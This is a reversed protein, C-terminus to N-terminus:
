HGAGSADPTSTSSATSSTLSGLHSLSPKGVMALDLDAQAQWFDRLADIAANVSAIQSRADALLEFVGILMGNYRLLNEESIRSKIPVIEDRQHKAIDWAYRYAVYAERVESRAQIATQAARHLSQMYLSEARAVRAQGWDFLPLEVTVEWGRQTPADNATNNVLGWELVNIFRTTRTLGLQHATAQAGARAARVDLRETMAQRELDPWSKPQSPLDPLRQPLQFSLQDGWLGLLRVLRERSAHQQQEARALKLAADAHFSKERAYQLANFNGVQAMRRALEASAEAAQMVQRGYRVSEQAAVAQVWAKRVNASLELVQMAVLAQTHELRRAQDRQSLPLTLLRLLNFHFSRELEVENGRTKQAFGFGPNPLRSAQLLQAESIGLEAYAAQLGQNNLLAVQIAEDMGLPESLLSKLRQTVREQEQPTRSWSIETKDPLHKATLQQVASLTGQPLAPADPQQRAVSSAAPAAPLATAPPTADQAEKAYNRWGGLQNVRQNADMWPVREEDRWRKYQELASSAPLDPVPAQADLPAALQATPKADGKGQAQAHAQAGSLAIALAGLILGHRVVFPFVM